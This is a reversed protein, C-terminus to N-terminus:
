ILWYGIIIEWEKISLQKNLILNLNKSIKILYKEYINVLKQWDKEYKNESSWHYDIIKDLNNKKYLVDNFINCWEGLLIRKKPDQEYNKELPTTILIM